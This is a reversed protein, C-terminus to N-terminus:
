RMVARSGDAAVRRALRDIQARSLVGGVVQAQQAAARHHHLDHVAATAFHLRRLYPHAARLERIAHVLARDLRAHFALHREAVDDLARVRDVDGVREGAAAAGREDQGSRVLRGLHLHRERDHSCHLCKRIGSPAGM